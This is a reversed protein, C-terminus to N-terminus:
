FFRLLGDEKNSSIEFQEKLEERLTHRHSELLFRSMIEIESITLEYLKAMTVFIENVGFDNEYLDSIMKNYEYFEKKNYKSARKSSLLSEILKKNEVLTDTLQKISLEDVVSDETELQQPTNNYDVKFNHSTEIIHPSVYEKDKKNKPKDFVEAM